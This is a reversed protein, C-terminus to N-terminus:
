GGGLSEIFARQVPWRGVVHRDVRKFIGSTLVGSLDNPNPAQKERSILSQLFKTLEELKTKLIAAQEESKCTVDLAVEFKEGQPGMTLVIREAGELVKAFQRTGSPLKESSLLAAAPLSMWVPQAPVPLPANDSRAPARIAKAAWEDASVALAMTQRNIAYFSLNRNGKPDAVRCFGNRCDGGQKTAYAIVNKWDFHGRLVFYNNEKQSNGAVADLDMKYDFGTQQVFAKYEAEENVASGVLKDLIGSDRLAKMDLFYVSGDKHPLYAILEAPSVPTGWHLFFTVAVAIACLAVM